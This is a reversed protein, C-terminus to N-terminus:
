STREDASSDVEEFDGEIIITEEVGAQSLDGASKEEKLEATNRHMAQLYRAVVHPPALEIFVKGGVVLATIDDLQGLVPIVDWVLDTPIFLYLVAALPLVKLYIPVDPDRLLYWVLRVQNWLERWFGEDKIRTALSTDMAEMQDEQRNDQDENTM